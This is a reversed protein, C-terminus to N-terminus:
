FPTIKYFYEVSCLEGFFIKLAHKLDIKTEKYHDELVCIPADSRNYILAGYYKSQHLPKFHSDYVFAHKTKCRYKESIVSCSCIYVGGNVKKLIRIAGWTQREINLVPTWNMVSIVCLYNEVESM